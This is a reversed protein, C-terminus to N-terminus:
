SSMLKHFLMTIKMSNKISENIGDRREREFIRDIQPKSKAYM